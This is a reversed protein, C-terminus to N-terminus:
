PRGGIWVAGSPKGQPNRYTTHVDVWQIINGSGDRGVFPVDGGSTVSVRSTPESEQVYLSEIPISIEIMQGRSAEAILIIMMLTVAAFWIRWSWYREDM